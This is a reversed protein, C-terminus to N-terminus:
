TTPTGFDAEAKENTYATCYSTVNINVSGNLVKGGGGRGFRLILPPVGVQGQEFYQKPVSASGDQFPRIVDELSM